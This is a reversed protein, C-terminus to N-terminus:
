DIVRQKELFRRSLVNSGVLAVVGVLLLLEPHSWTSTTTRHWLYGFMAVSLGILGVVPPILEMSDM